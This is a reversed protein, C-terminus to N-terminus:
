WPSRGPATVTSWRGPSATSCGGTAWAPLLEGRFLRRCRRARGRSHHRDAARLTDDDGSPTPDSARGLEELAIALEVTEAVEALETWGQAVIARRASGPRLRGRGGAAGLRTLMGLPWSSRSRRRGCGKTPDLELLM